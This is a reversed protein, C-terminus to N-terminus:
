TLRAALAADDASWDAPEHDMEPPDEATMASSEILADARFTAVQHRRSLDRRDCHLHPVDAARSPSPPRPPCRARRSRAAAPQRRDRGVFRTGGVVLHARRSVLLQITATGAAGPKSTSFRPDAGSM